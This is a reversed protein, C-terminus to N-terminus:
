LVEDLIARYDDASAVRPNSAHSHDLMANESVGPLMDETVGLLRLREPVGTRRGIAELEAAVDNEADLGMAARLRALKDAIHSQNFRIVPPM